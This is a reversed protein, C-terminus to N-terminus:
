GRSDTAANEVSCADAEPDKSGDPNGVEDASAIDAIAQKCVNLTQWMEALEGAHLREYARLQQELKLLHCALDDQQTGRLM